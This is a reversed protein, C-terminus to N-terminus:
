RSVILSLGFVLAELDAVYMHLAHAVDAKTKGEARLADFVKALIQSTERPMPMPERKRYGRESIQMFLTRGHWESVQQLRSLRLALAAVSVGWNRKLAILSDLTVVKIPSAHALVSEKPMLFASAFANADKEADRGHPVGHRHLVLHGLEHAADFRSHEASKITNLFVYPVQGRWLSFADVEVSEQALSFVRVGRSELLHIMNKVPQVGLGWATRVEAAASEPDAPRLYPIAPAPLRFQDEIWCSIESALEGAALAMDRQWARMSKMSRFSAADESLPEVDPQEFFTRPFRLVRALDQVTAEGPPREGAEYATINRVDVRIQEALEVMKMGRRRRALSLRSPTFAGM